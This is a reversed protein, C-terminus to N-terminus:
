RHVQLDKILNEDGGIGLEIVRDYNKIALQFQGGEFYLSALYYHTEHSEPDM